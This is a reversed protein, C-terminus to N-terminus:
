RRVVVGPWSLARAIWARSVTVYMFSLPRANKPPSM